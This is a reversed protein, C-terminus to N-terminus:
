RFRWSWGLIDALGGSLSLAQIVTVADVTLVVAGALSVLTGVVLGGGFIEHDRNLVASLHVRFVLHLQLIATAVAIPALAFAMYRFMQSLSVSVGSVVFWRTARWDMFRLGPWQSPMLMALVVVATAALHSIFGAAVGNALTKAPLAMGILIPSIGYGLACLSAYFYGERYNPTFAPM